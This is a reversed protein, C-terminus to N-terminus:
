RARRRITPRDRPRDRRRAHHAPGSTRGAATPRGAIEPNFRIANARVLPAVGDEAAAADHLVDLAFAIRRPEAQAGILIDPREGPAARRFSIDAAGSWM